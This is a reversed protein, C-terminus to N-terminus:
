YGHNSHKFLLNNISKRKCIEGRIKIWKYNFINILDVKLNQANFKIFINLKKM